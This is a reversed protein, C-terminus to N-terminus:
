IHIFCAKLFIAQSPTWVAPGLDMKAEHKFISGQSVHHLWNLDRSKVKYKLSHINLTLCFVLTRGSTVLKWLQYNRTFYKSISCYHPISEKKQLIKWVIACQSNSGPNPLPNCKPHHQEV